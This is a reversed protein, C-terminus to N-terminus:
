IALMEAKMKLSVGDKCWKTKSQKLLQIQLQTRQNSLSKGSDCVFNEDSTFKMVLFLTFM